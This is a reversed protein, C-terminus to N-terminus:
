MLRVATYLTRHHTPIKSSTCPFQRAKKIVRTLEPAILFNKTRAKSNLTIKVLIGSIKKSWNVHELAYIEALQVSYYVPIKYGFETGKSSSRMSRRIPNM